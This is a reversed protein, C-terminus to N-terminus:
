RSSLHAGVQGPQPCSAEDASGSPEAAEPVLRHYVQATDIAIRDWSYRSRARDRGAAGLSNRTFPHKLMSLIAEACERPKRPSVLRGTVDPIVTDTLGGVTSAVVPVGCAMAELAAMGFSEHQPVCAVVDASRLLEPMERQSAQGYFQVREAVGMRTALATLRSTEADRAPEGAAIEGIILLEANPILRLSEILTDYGSGPAVDGVTLIRHREGRPAVVGQPSFVEIDVGCPVVSTRARRGGMQGLQLMEETHSAVLWSSGRAVLAELRRRSQSGTHAPVSGSPGGLSHFTQVTPIQQGRAALQAAVGASWFHAHALDPTDRAWRDELFQSFAGLDQLIEADAHSEHAAAPGHVVAFGGASHVREALSSTERGTYMTVLHGHRALAASLGALQRPQATTDGGSLCVMAIKM